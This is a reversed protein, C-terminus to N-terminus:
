LPLVPLGVKQLEAASFAMTLNRQLRQGYVPYTGLPYYPYYIPQKLPFTSSLHNYLSAWRVACWVWSEAEPYSLYPTVRPFHLRSM